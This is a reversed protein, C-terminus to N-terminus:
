RFAARAATGEAREQERKGAQNAARCADRDSSRGAAAMRDPAATRLAATRLPATRLAAAGYPPQGFVPQSTTPPGYGSPAYQQAGPSQQGPGPLDTRWNHGPRHGSIGPQPYAPQQPPQGQQPPQTQQPAPYTPAGDPQQGPEPARSARSRSNGAPRTPPNGSGAVSGAGALGSRWRRDNKVAGEVSSPAGGVASRYIPGRWGPRLGAELTVSLPVPCRHNPCERVRVTVQHGPGLTDPPDLPRDRRPSSPSCVSSGGAPDRRDPAGVTGIPRPPSRHGRGAPGGVDDRLGPTRCAPRRRGGGRGGDPAAAPHALVIPAICAPGLLPVLIPVARWPSADFLGLKGHM